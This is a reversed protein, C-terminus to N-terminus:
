GLQHAIRAFESWNGLVTEFTLESIAPPFSANKTRLADMIEQYKRNLSALERRFIRRRIADDSVKRKLEKYKTKLENVRRSFHSVGNQFHSLAYLKAQQFQNQANFASLASEIIDVTYQLKTDGAGNIQEGLAQPARKMAEAALALALAKLEPVSASQLEKAYATRSGNAQCLPRPSAIFILCLLFFYIGKKM